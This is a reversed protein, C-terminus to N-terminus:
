YLQKYKAYLQGCSASIDNGYSKRITVTLNADKFYSYFRITDKQLAKKFNANPIPNYPIINIKAKLNKAIKITAYPFVIL